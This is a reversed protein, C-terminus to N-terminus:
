SANPSVFDIYREVNYVGPFPLYLSLLPTSSATRRLTLRATGEMLAKGSSYDMVILLYGVAGMVVKVLGTIFVIRLGICTYQVPCRM